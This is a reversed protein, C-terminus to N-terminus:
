GLLAQVQPARSSSRAPLPQLLRCCRRTASGRMACSPHSPSPAAQQLRLLRPQRRRSGSGLSRWCAPCCARRSSVTLPRARLRCVAPLHPLGAITLVPPLLITRRGVLVPTVGRKMDSWGPGVDLCVCVGTNRQCHLTRLPGPGCVGPAAPLGRGWQAPQCACGGHGGAGRTGGAGRGRWGRRQCGAEPAAHISLHEPVAALWRLHRTCDTMLCRMRTGRLQLEVGRQQATGATNGGRGWRRVQGQLLKAKAIRRKLYEVTMFEPAEVM